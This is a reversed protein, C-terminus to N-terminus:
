YVSNYLQSKVCWPMFTKNHMHRPYRPVSFLTNLNLKSKLYTLWRCTVCSWQMTFMFLVNFIWHILWYILLLYCIRQTVFPVSFTIPSLPELYAVNLWTMYLVVVYLLKSIPVSSTPEFWHHRRSSSQAWTIRASKWVTIDRLLFLM